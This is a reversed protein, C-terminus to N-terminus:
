LATEKMLTKFESVFQGVYTPDLLRISRLEDQRNEEYERNTIPTLGTYADEDVENFIEIKTKTNGSSQPVEYHHIGDPNSYKDNIFELFQPTSMPWQHFRDTVNNIMLIVWHLEPDGYLKSAIIEPTEGEKVDYTDYLLVNTRIHVRLGVRRLLNKVDKFDGDGQSDYIITPFNEFYM